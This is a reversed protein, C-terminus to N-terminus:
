VPLLEAQNSQSITFILTLLLQQRSPLQWHLQNLQFEVPGVGVGIGVDERPDIAALIDAHRGNLKSCSATLQPVATRQKDSGSV